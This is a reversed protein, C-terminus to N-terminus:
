PHLADLSAIRRVGLALAEAPLERGHEPGGARDLWIGRLGAAAAGMADTALRDGVYLADSAAVGFRECALTFIRPDPKTLGVDGSAVVHEVRGALGVREIKGLQFDLEGNTIIGIQVGSARFRDLAPLADDHLTWAEVYHELYAAFWESAEEPSLEIGAGAAFASARARRQGEYDLEGALYRHYHEEELLHWRRQVELPDAAYAEGLTAAHAVIGERVARAHAFLTDDLDFLALRLM